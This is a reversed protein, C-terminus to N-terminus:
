PARYWGYVYGCARALSAMAKLPKFGPRLRPDAYSYPLFINPLLIALRFALYGGAQWRSRFARGPDRSPDYRVEQAHGLGYLFQKRLLESLTSPAPHYVWTQAALFLRYGRRRLRVFFETDVGRVLREDFGGSAAFTQHSM